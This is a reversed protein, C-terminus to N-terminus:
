PIMLDEGRLVNNELSHDLLKPYPKLTKPNLTSSTSSASSASASASSSAAASSSSSIM